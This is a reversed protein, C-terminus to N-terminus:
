DRVGDSLVIAFSVLRSSCVVFVSVCRIAIENLMTLLAVLLLGPLFLISLAYPVIISPRFFVLFSFVICLEERLRECESRMRGMAREQDNTQQELKQLTEKAETM